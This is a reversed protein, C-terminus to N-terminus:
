FGGSKEKVTRKSFIFLSLFPAAGIVLRNRDKLERIDEVTKIREVESSTFNLLIIHRGQVTLEIGPILLIGKKLAYDRLSDSCTITNHNTIALVDFGREAARDILEKAAYPFTAIM